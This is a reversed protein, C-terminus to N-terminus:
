WKNDIKKLIALLIGWISGFVIASPILVKIFVVGECESCATRVLYCFAMLNVGWIIYYKKRVLLRREEISM